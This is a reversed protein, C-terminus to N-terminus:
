NCMFGTNVSLSSRLKLTNLLLTSLFISLVRSGAKTSTEHMGAQRSVHRVMGAQRAKVVRSAQM